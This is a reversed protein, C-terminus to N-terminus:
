IERILILPANAAVKMFHHFLPLPCTGGRRRSPPGTRRHRSTDPSLLPLAPGGWRCGSSGALLRHRGLRRLLISRTFGGCRRSSLGARRATGSRRGWPRTAATRPRGACATGSSGSCASDGSFIRSASLICCCSWFETQLYHAAALATWKNWNDTLVDHYLVIKRYKRDNSLKPM